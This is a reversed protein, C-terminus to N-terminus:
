CLSGSIVQGARDLAKRVREDCWISKMAKAIVMTMAISMAIAMVMVMAMMIAIKVEFIVMIKETISIRARKTPGWLNLIINMPIKYRYLKEGLGGLVEEKAACLEWQNTEALGGGILASWKQRWKFSELFWSDWISRVNVTVQNWTKEGWMCCCLASSM